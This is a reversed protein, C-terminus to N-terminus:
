KGTCCPYGCDKSVENYKRAYSKCWDRVAAVTPRFEKGALRGRKLAERIAFLPFEALDDLWDNLVYVEYETEGRQRPYHSFFAQLM